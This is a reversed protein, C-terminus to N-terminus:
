RRAAAPPAPRYRQYVWYLGVLWCISLLVAGLVDSPCHAGLVVRGVGAGILLAAAAACLCLRGPNRQRMILLLM